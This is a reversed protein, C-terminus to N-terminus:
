GMLTTLTIGSPLSSQDPISITYDAYNRAPRDHHARAVRVTELLTHAPANGLRSSHTFVHLARTAMEGRAASRDHDFMTGLADYLLALDEGTVGTREALHASLFGHCRYLGYAVTWKSGMETEKTDDERTPTVRTIAHEFPVVPDISRAFTLQVPGQVKGADFDGTAMVAGFVRVDFFNECMWAQAQRVDDPKRGGKKKGSDLGLDTYARRMHSNLAVGAEVFVKYAADDPRALGVYNRIKRKLAVDTVLGHGTEPDVRPQNAADPDGNPNGDTVDFLFV